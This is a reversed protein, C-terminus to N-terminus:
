QNGAGLFLPGVHRRYLNATVGPGIVGAHRDLADLFRGGMEAALRYAVHLVQRLSPNYANCAPDHRM